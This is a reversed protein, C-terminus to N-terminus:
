GFYISLLESEEGEYGVEFTVVGGVEGNRLSLESVNGAIDGNFDAASQLFLHYGAAPDGSLVLQVATQGVSVLNVVWRYHLTLFRSDYPVSVDGLTASGRLRLYPQSASIAAEAWPSSVAPGLAPGSRRWSKM